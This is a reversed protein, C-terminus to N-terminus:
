PKRSRRLERLTQYTTQAAGSWGVLSYDDPWPMAKELQWLGSVNWHRGDAFRFEFSTTSLKRSSIDVEKGDFEIRRATWDAHMTDIGQPYASVVVSLALWLARGFGHQFIENQRQFDEEGRIGYSVGTENPLRLAKVVTDTTHNIFLEEGNSFRQIEFTGEAEPWFAKAVQLQVTGICRNADGLCKWGTKTQEVQSQSVGFCVLLLLSLSLRRLTRM